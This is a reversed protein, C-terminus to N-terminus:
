ISRERLAAPLLQSPTGTTMVWLQHAARTAAIHLLHRSEDDIPFSPSTCEVIVVYDFELGKVQRVDTVDVGPRFPFDQDAIRRLNPVEGHQLGKYFLDAQEPYRAIVAVSARPESRVLERLAESLFGVAEGTNGFRFLEIPAGHRTAQARVENQLPGLVETAFELIEHTSRYSLRLPEVEVHDLKLEQLVSRWDRFSNDLQLKQAVDGALTVSQGRSVTDLVVALEIPALDQAEDVFLHEYRLAEKKRMLPGRLRQWLRLLIADDERDLTPVEVEDQEDIGRMGTPASDGSRKLEEQEEAWVQALPCRRSCWSLAWELERESFDNAGTRSLADAVRGRDTLLEAWAGIVDSTKQEGNLVAREIAHRTELPLRKGGDDDSLWRRLRRLRSGPARGESTRWERLAHGGGSSTKATDVIVTEVEQSVSDAFQDILRLIAPHKKLRVVVSPTTDAYQSPLFRLHRSRLREAWDEYTAISVGPVGLAPLVRTIYRSLAHNFVVILMRDARFRQPDQFALYALRHLGITTKGSGAGGQIVVLGSTPKSILEFQRRDILATIESLHKDEIEASEGVGLRGRSRGHRRSRGSGRRESGGGPRHHSEPRMASGQGGRLQMATSGLRRWTGDQRRSFTGQPAGIRRLEAATISLNRRVLVDGEVVRDGFVEEFDDGEEYRYYIRSVPADRWDVIRIGTKPDLFTSRGILVERKRDTEELVIRGFYPSQPDVVGQTVKSRRSAVQQLREMEEVLPPVDELRAERIQDRLALLEADYDIKKSVSTPRRASLTRKVRTLVREEESVIQDMEGDTHPPPASSGAAMARAEDSSRTAGWSDIETPM